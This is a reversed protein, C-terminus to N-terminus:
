NRWYDTPSRPLRPTSIDGPDNLTISGNPHFPDAIEAVVRGGELRGVASVASFSLWKSQLDADNESKM